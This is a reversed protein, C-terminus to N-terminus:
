IIQQRDPAADAFVNVRRQISAPGAGYVLRSSITGSILPAIEPLGANFVYAYERM